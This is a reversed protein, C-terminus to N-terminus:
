LNFPFFTRPCQPIVPSFRCVLQLKEEYLERCREREGKEGGRLVAEGSIAVFADHLSFNPAESAVARVVEFQKAQVQFNKESWGPLVGMGPIPPSLLHLFHTPLLHIACTILPPTTLLM